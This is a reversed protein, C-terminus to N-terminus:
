GIQFYSPNSAHRAYVRQAYAVTSVPIQRGYYVSGPIFYAPGANYAMVVRYWDSGIEPFNRLYDIYQAAYEIAAGPNKLDDIKAGFIDGTAPMMQMIGVEGARGRKTGDMVAPEFGSESRAIEALVGCPIGHQRSVNRILVAIDPPVTQLGSYAGTSAAVKADVGANRAALLAAFGAGVAIYVPIM